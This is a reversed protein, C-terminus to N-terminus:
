LFCKLMEKGLILGGLIEGELGLYPFNEKGVFFLRKSLKFPIIGERWEFTSHTEYQFHPYSWCEVQDEAWTQDIFELHNELFPILYKLHNMMGQKLEEIRERVSSYFPLFTQVTMARKGEPAQGEDGKENLALWILNGGEESKELSQQSILLDKMGVPIGTERIGIFFPIIRYKPRIKEGWKSVIKRKKEFLSVCQHLPINLVLFRSRVVKDPDKLYLNFGERGKVEIKDVGEIEHLNGGSQIFQGFMQRTLEELDISEEQNEMRENRFLYSTLAIPIPGTSLNGRFRIQLQIFKQFQPTFPSLWHEIEKKPLSDGSFWKKLFGEQRIPFFPSHHEKQQLQDLIEKIRDIEGYFTEIRKWENPFERKWERLLLSRERFLDIRGHPLIVQFSVESASRGEVRRKESPNSPCSIKKLFQSSIRKEFFNSFPIFRYGPKVFTTQFRKEKLILVRKSAQTLQLAAIVGGLGSGLIAVDYIYEQHKM